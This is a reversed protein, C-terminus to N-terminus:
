HVHDILQNFNSVFINLKKISTDKIYFSEKPDEM